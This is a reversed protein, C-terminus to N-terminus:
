IKGALEQLDAYQKWDLHQVAWGCFHELSISNPRLKQMAKKLDKGHFWVRYDAQVLFQSASFKNLYRIYSEELKAHSVNETM